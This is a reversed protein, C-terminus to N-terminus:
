VIQLHLYIKKWSIIKRKFNTLRDSEKVEEPLSSWLHHGIYQINEVGYKATKFNLLQLHSRSRFNSQVNRETFIKKM